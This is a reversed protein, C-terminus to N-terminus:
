PAQESGGHLPLLVPSCLSLQRCDSASERWFIQQDSGRPIIHRSRGRQWEGCDPDAVRRVTKQASGTDLVLNFEPSGVPYTKGGMLTEAHNGAMVSLFKVKWRVLVKGDLDSIKDPESELLQALNTSYGVGVVSQDPQAALTKRLVTVAAEQDFLERRQHPYILDGGEDRLEAVYQTFNVGDPSPLYPRYESQRLDEVTLGDQVVGIPIDAHGYFRSLLDVCATFWASKTGITVALCNWREVTRYHMCCPLRWRM